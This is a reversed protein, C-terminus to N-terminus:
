FNRPHESLERYCGLLLIFKPDSKRTLSQHGGGGEESQTKIDITAYRKSTRAARLSFLYGECFWSLEKKCSKSWKCTNFKFPCLTELHPADPLQHSFSITNYVM